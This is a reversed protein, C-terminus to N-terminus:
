SPIWRPLNWLIEVLKEMCLPLNQMGKCLNSLPYLIKARYVQFNKNQSDFAIQSLPLYHCNLKKQKLLLVPQGCTQAIIFLLIVRGTGGGGEEEM